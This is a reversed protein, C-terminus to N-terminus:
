VKCWEETYHFIFRRYKKLQFKIHNPCSFGMLFCFKLSQVAWTFDWCIQVKVPEKQRFYIYNWSFTISSTQRTVSFLSAFNSFGIQQKVFSVWNLSNPDLCEFAKHIISSFFLSFNSSSSVQRKSISMLFKIFKSGFM